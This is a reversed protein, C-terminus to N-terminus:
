IIERVHDYMDDCVHNLAQHESKLDEIQKRQKFVYLSLGICGILLLGSM